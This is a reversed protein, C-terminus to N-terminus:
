VTELLMDPDEDALMLAVTEVLGEVVAVIVTLLEKVGLVDM